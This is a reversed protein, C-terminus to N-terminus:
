YRYKDAHMNQYILQTHPQLVYKANNHEALPLNYGLESSAAMGKSDYKQAPAM